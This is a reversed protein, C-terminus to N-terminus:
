RAARVRDDRRARLTVPGTRVRRAAPARGHWRRPSSDRRADHAAVRRPRSLHVHRPRRGITPCGRRRAADRVVGRLEFIDAFDADLALTLTCREPHLRTTTITIRESFGDAMVRDRVIGLSQRRLVVGLRRSTAGSRRLPGPQDAPHHEAFSAAPGARLVVPRLGNLRLEYTSLM